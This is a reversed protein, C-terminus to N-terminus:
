PERIRAERSTSSAAASSVAAAVESPCTLTLPRSCGISNNRSAQPVKGHLVRKQWIKESFYWALTRHFEQQLNDPSLKRLEEARQASSKYDM